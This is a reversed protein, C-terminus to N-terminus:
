GLKRSKHQRSQHRAVRSAMSTQNFMSRFTHDGEPTDLSYFNRNKVGKHHDKEGRLWWDPPTVKVKKRQGPVEPSTNQSSAQTTGKGTKKTAGFLSEAVLAIPAQIGMWMASADVIFEPVTVSGAYDLTMM